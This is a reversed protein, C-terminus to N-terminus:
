WLVNYKKVVVCRVLAIVIVIKSAADSAGPVSGCWEELDLDM